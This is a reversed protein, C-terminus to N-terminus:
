LSDETGSFYEDGESGGLGSPEQVCFNDEKPKIIKNISSSDLDQPARWRLDNIPPKAYPIDDWSITGNKEYGFTIGSSTNIIYDDSLINSSGLIFYFILVNKLKMIVTYNQIYYSM